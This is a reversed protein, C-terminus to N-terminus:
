AHTGDPYTLHLDQIDIMQTDTESRSLVAQRFPWVLAAAGKVADGILFPVMGVMLTKSM